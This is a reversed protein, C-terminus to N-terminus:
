QFACLTVKKISPLHYIRNKTTGTSELNLSHLIKQAINGSPLHLFNRFEFNTITLNLLNFFDNLAEIHANKSSCKCGPCSWKGKLYIMPIYSCDPCRVGTRIDRPSIKYEDLINIKLPDHNSLLLKGMENIKRINVKEQTFVKEYTNIKNFLDRAKCIKRMDSRGPPNSKLITRVSSFFVLYDIPLLNMGKSAMWRYLLTQIREAQVRPDEFGEETGDDHIRILQNFENDFVLTGSINKAEIILIYNQSILLTDIQFYIGQTKLQLDHFIFYKNQPLEKVYGDLIMEGRYGARRKALDKEIDAHKYHGITLRRAL